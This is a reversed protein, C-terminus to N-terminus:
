WNITRMEAKTPSKPPERTEARDRRRDSRTPNGPDVTGNFFRRESGEFGSVACQIMAENNAAM